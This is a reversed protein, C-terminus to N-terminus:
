SVCLVVVGGVVVMDVFVVVVVVVIYWLVYDHTVVGDHICVCFCISDVNCCRVVM